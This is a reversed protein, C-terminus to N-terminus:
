VLKDKKEEMVGKCWNKWEWAKNMWQQIAFGRCMTGSLIKQGNFSKLNMQGHKEFGEKPLLGIFHDIHSFINLNLLLNYRADADRASWKIHVKVHKNQTKQTQSSLKVCLSFNGENEFSIQDKRTGYRRQVREKMRCKSVKIGLTLVTRENEMKTWKHQMTLKRGWCLVQNFKKVAVDKVFDEMGDIVICLSIWTNFAFRIQCWCRKSILWLQFLKCFMSIRKALRRKERAEVICM